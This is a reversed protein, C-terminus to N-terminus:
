KYLAQVFIEGFKAASSPGDATIIIGDREVDAGSYTAGNKRLTGVESSFVTAKKGKLIGARALISPALCIAGLLKGGDRTERAIAQARTNNFLVTAGSGGVFIVADYDATRVEDLSLDVKVQMGLMGVAEGKMDSAIVVSAGKKELMERPYKLEEDRFDKHAVVILVKKVKPPAPLVPSAGLLCLCTILALILKKKMACRWM